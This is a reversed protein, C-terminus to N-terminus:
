RLFSFYSVQAGNTSRVYHPTVSERVGALVLIQAIDQSQKTNVVQSAKAATATIESVEGKSATQQKSESAGLKAVLRKPKPAM